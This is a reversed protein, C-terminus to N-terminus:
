VWKPLGKRAPIHNPKKGEPFKKWKNNKERQTEMFKVTILREDFSQANANIVVFSFGAGGFLVELKACNFNATRLRGLELQSLTQQSIGLRQALHAQTMMAKMRVLMLRRGMDENFIPTTNLNFREQRTMETM